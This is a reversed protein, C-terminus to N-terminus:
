GRRRRPGRAGILLALGVLALTAPEPVGHPQVSVADLDWLGRGANDFEFRLETLASSAILPFHLTTFGPNIDIYSQEAAGGDWNFVFHNSAGLTQRIYFSVDYSAGPTTAITQTIGGPTDNGFHAIFLGEHPASTNVATSSTDGFASWGSFDGSEFGGNVVLDAQAGRAFSLAAVALLAAPIRSIRNMM